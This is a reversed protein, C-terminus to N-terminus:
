RVIGVERLAAELQTWREELTGTFGLSFRLLGPSIGAARLAAEDMESATSSASCSMLTDAFGLSVAMLGFCHRNQLSEMLQFAREASGLDLTFLGGFGYGPNIQRAMLEHQPHSRLGPYVVPLGLAELRECIALARRSHEAMRLPLHPLRNSIEFAVRPDMTPGLLMLTGMHLDMLQQILETRGLVAGAVLDSAGNIFKTLSHVVVDAGFRLPTLLVPCFTNDVVLLAGKRKAIAALGALDAVMLTPNSLSEVYLVRTRPTFAAEVAALDETSVFTTTVGTKAPLFESLLAHTGGYIARGAVIHDGAQCLQLLTASIAAMGSASCYGSEADELAALERGLAYVTPNFHRGYLFCGNADATRQGAFIEPMTAASMVTFTASAEISMNVGGHEGFEHKARALAAAPDFQTTPM